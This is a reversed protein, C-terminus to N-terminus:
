IPSVKCSFIIKANYLNAAKRPSISEDEEETVVFSSDIGKDELQKKLILQDKISSRKYRSLNIPIKQLFVTEVQLGKFFPHSQLSEM